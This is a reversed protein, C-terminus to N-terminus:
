ARKALLAVVRGLIGGALAWNIPISLMLLAAFMKAGLGERFLDVLLSLPAGWLTTYVVFWEVTDDPSQASKRIAILGIAIALALGAIAGILAGRGAGSM